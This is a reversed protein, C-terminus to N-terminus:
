EVLREGCDRGNHLRNWRVFPLRYRRRGSGVQHSLYRRFRLAIVMTYTSGIVTSIPASMAVSRSVQGNLIGSGISVTGILLLLRCCCSKDREVIFLFDIRILRISLFRLICGLIFLPFHVLVIFLFSQECGLGKIVIGNPIHLLVGFSKPRHAECEEYSRSQYQPDTQTGNKGVPTCDLSTKSVPM